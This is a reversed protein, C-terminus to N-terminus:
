NTLSLGSGGTAATASTNTTIQEIGPAVVAVETTIGAAERWPDLISMMFDSIAGNFDALYHQTLQTQAVGAQSYHSYALISPDVLYGTLVTTAAAIAFTAMLHSSGFKGEKDAM